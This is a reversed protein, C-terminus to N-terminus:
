DFKNSPYSSYGLPCDKVRTPPITDPKIQFLNIVATETFSTTLNPLPGRQIHFLPTMTMIQWGGICCYMLYGTLLGLAVGTVGTIAFIRKKWNAFEESEM